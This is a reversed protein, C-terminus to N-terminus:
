YERQKQGIYVFYGATPERLSYPENCLLTACDVLFAADIYVLGVLALKDVTLMSKISKRRSIVASRAAKGWSSVGSSCLIAKSAILSSTAAARPSSTSCNFPFTEVIEILTGASRSM